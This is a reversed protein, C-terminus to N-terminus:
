NSRHSPQAAAAIAARLSEPAVPKLLVAYGKSRIDALLRPDTDGTILLAPVPAELEEQIAEIADIGTLDDQLRYDCLILDPQFEELIGLAKFLTQASRCPHGWGALLAEMAERVQPEDDIVLLRQSSVDPATATTQSPNASASEAAAVAQLTLSFTSGQGPTSTLEIQAGILDCMRKVISLGLGIGKERDRKKNALQHYENFVAHQEAVPIGIGTDSVQLRVVAGDVATHVRIEGQPTFKIANDILNRLIRALMVPDTHVWAAREDYNLTLGAAAARERLEDALPKILASLELPRLKADIQGSDLRSVELLADFLGTLAGYATQVQGMLKSLQANNAQTVPERMAHLFLGLSNLPQRLDHSAAALFRSKEQNAQEVLAKEASVQQLLAENEIDKTISGMVVKHLRVSFVMLYLYFVVLALTLMPYGAQYTALNIGLMTPILFAFCCVLSSALSPIIGSSLIAIITIFVVFLELDQPDPMFLYAGAGWTIGGLLIFIVVTIATKTIPLQGPPLRQLPKLFLWQRVMVVVINIAVWGLLWEPDASQHLLLAIVLSAVIGTAATLEIQQLLLTFRRQCRRQHHDDCTNPLRM